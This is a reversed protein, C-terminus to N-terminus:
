SSSWSCSCLVVTAMRCGCVGEQRLLALVYCSERMMETITSCVVGVLLAVEKAEGVMVADSRDKLRTSLPEIRSHVM